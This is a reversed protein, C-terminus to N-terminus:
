DEDKTDVDKKNSITDILDKIAKDLDVGAMEEQVAHEALEDSHRQVFTHLALSFMNCVSTQGALVQSNLDSLGAVVLQDQVAYINELLALVVAGPIFLGQETVFSPVDKLWEDMEEQAQKFIENYDM